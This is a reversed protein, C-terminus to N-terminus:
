RGFGEWASTGQALSHDESARQAPGPASRSRHALISAVDGEAFRGTVAAHGLAWDVPEAGHIKGLAVADAMKARVRRVGADAAERLWHAAGPGLSLLAAEEPNQAVPSRQLSGEPPPPFHAEDIRPTGPTTRRHRAVEVPGAGEVHTVM